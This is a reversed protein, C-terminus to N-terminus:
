MLGAFVQVNLSFFIEAAGYFFEISLAKCSHRKVSRNLVQTSKGQLNDPVPIMGPSEEEQWVPNKAAGIAGSKNQGPLVPEAFSPTAQRTYIPV